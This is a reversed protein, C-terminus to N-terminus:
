SRVLMGSSSLKPVPTSRPRRIAARLSAVGDKEYWGLGRVNMV